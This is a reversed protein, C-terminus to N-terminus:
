IAGERSFEQNYAAVFESANLRKAKAEAGGGDLKNLHQGTTANWENKRTYLRGSRGRFGILTEYSFYYAEGTAHVVSTLKDEVTIFPLYM